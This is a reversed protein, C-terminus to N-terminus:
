SPRRQSSQRSPQHYSRAPLVPKRAVPITTVSSGSSGTSTTTLTLPRPSLGPLGPPASTLFNSADVPGAYCDGGTCPGSASNWWNFQANINDGIAIVAALPNGAFSNQHVDHVVGGGVSLNTQLGAQANSEIRNHTFLVRGGTYYAAASATGSIGNSDVAVAITDFLFQDGRLGYAGGRITNGRVVSGSLLSNLYVGTYCNEVTDGVTTFRRAANMLIGYQSSNSGTCQVHNGSFAVSRTSGSGTGAQIGVFAIRTLQNGAVLASDGSLVIAYQVSDMVLNTAEHLGPVAGNVYVGEYMKSFTSHRVRADLSSGRPFLYIGYGLDCGPAADTCGSFQLSDAFFDTGQFQLSSGQGNHLFKSRTVRGINGDINGYGAAGAVDDFNVITGDVVVTDANNARLWYYGNGSVSVSDGHLAVEMLVDGSCEGCGGSLNLADSISGAVVSTDVVVRRTQNTRVAGSGNREVRSHAVYLVPNTTGFETGIDIGANQNDSITSRLVVLSDVDTWEVGQNFGTIRSDRVLVLGTHPSCFNNDVASSGSDGSFFSRDIRVTDMTASTCSTVGGGFTGSLSEIKADELGLNRIGNADLAFYFNRFAVNQVVARQGANFRLATHSGRQADRFLPRTTTDGVTGGRIVVGVGLQGDQDFDYTGSAVHITDGETVFPFARSPHEFPFAATGLQIAAGTVHGDVEWVARHPVVTITAAAQVGPGAEGTITVTGPGRPTVLGTGDVTAINYDSSRWVADSVTVLRGATDRAQLLLPLPQTPALQASAPFISLTRGSGTGCSTPALLLVRQGPIDIGVAYSLIILADVSQVLGDANVDALGTDFVTTDVVLPTTSLTDIVTDVPLGVVKSLTLLADRSNAHGDRDIDGWRGRAPCITGSLTTLSPLLNTFTGAGSMESFSLTLPTGTTDLITFPLQTVTVLGSVGVPSVATFKLIGQAISDGNFAPAPFNGQYNANGCFPACTSLKAPNWVLRATYSGLKEGGSATMDVAVPVIVQGGVFGTLEGGLRATVSQAHAAGAFGLGFTLALLLLGLPVRKM